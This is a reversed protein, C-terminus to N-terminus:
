KNYNPAFGKAPRAFYYGQGLDCGLSALTSCEGITEIGECIVQMQLDRECLQLMSRVVSEKRKSSDIGRILSMDLKVYDPELISFSSLGAYGAGLDDVAVSYGLERLRQIRTAIGSITDLSHRETIEIVVRKAFAALPSTASYLEFDDLEGAHVNVFLLADIAASRVM